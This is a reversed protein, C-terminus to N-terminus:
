MNARGQKQFFVGVEYSAVGDCRWPSSVPMSTLRKLLRHLEHSRIMLGEIPPHRLKNALCFPCVEPLTQHGKTLWAFTTTLSPNFSGSCEHYPPLAEKSLRTQYPTQRELSTPPFVIMMWDKGGWPCLWPRNWPFWDQSQQRRGAWLYPDLVDYLWLTPSFLGLSTFLSPYLHSKRRPNAVDNFTPKSM